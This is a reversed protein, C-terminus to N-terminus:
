DITYVTTFMCSWLHPDTLRFKEIYIAAKEATSFIGVITSSGEDEEIRVVWENLGGHGM